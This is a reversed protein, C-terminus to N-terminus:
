RIKLNLKKNPQILFKSKENSLIYLCQGTKKKSSTSNTSFDLGNQIGTKHMIDLKMTRRESLKYFKKKKYGSNKYKKLKSKNEEM